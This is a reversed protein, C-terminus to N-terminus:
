KDPMLQNIERVQDATYVTVPSFEGNKLQYIAISTLANRQEDFSMGGTVTDEFVADDMLDRMNAPTVEEGAEKLRKILEAYLRTGM